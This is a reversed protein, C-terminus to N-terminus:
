RASRASAASSARSSGRRLELAHAREAVVAAELAGPLEVERVALAAEAAPPDVVDLQQEGLGAVHERSGTPSAHTIPARTQHPDKAAHDIAGQDRTRAARRPGGDRSTAPRM